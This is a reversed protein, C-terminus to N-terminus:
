GALARCMCDAIEQAYGRIVAQDTGEIMV